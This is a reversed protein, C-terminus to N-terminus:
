DKTIQQEAQGLRVEIRDLVIEHRELLETHRQLDAAWAGAAAARELAQVTMRDLATEIRQVDDSSAADEVQSRLQELRQNVAQMALSGVGMAVSLVLGTGAIVARWDTKRAQELLEALRGLESTVQAHNQQLQAGMAAQGAELSALREGHGAGPSQEPNTRNM